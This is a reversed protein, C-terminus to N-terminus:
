SFVKQRDSIFTFNSNRELQLDDGLCKLFWIWSAKTESEVIAYALPYTGHNPDVGVATLIQGPFPGRMHCGDLGLLERLGAKFGLKLVGLCVYIRKFQRTTESPNCRETEIKVTTDPNANQLEECYDRLLHYQETYDGKVKMTAKAKARFVKDTTVGIGFKTQIQEKLSKLPVDPNSKIVEEIDEALFTNTCMNVKRTQICRHVDM